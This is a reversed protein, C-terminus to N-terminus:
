YSHPRLPSSLFCRVEFGGARDTDYELYYTDAKLEKFLKTSIAEYGGESFHMGNKFNGTGADGLSTLWGSPSVLLPSLVFRPV